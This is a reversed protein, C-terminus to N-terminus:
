AGGTLPNIGKAITQSDAEGLGLTDYSKPNLNLLYKQFNTLGNGSNDTEPDLIKPDSVAIITAPFGPTILRPLGATGVAPRLSQQPTAAM